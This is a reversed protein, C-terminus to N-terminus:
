TPWPRSASSSPSAGPSPRARSAASGGRPGAADMAPCPGRAAGAAGARRGPRGPRPVLGAGRRRAAVAMLAPRRDDRRRAPPRARGGPRADGRACEEALVHALRSDWADGPLVVAQPLARLLRESVEGVSGYTGCLMMTPADPRQGWTRVGLHAYNAPPSGDPLACDADPGVVVQVPTAPDDAIDYPEPGRLLAVDGAALAIPGQGAPTLVADGRLLVVLTLPAEDAIRLSWPPDLLSRLLFAGRARPGDLLGAIPDM